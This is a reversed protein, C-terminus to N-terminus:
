AHYRSPSTGAQHQSMSPSYKSAAVEGYINGGQSPLSLTFISGHDPESQVKISGGLMQTFVRVIHLGLGVGGHARASSSDVQRFKEFIVPLAEKPIGVGTDAIAFQVTKKDRSLKVSINVSGEDTFKLANDILNQLIMTLKTRDSNITPLDSSFSWQLSVAKEGASEYRSRLEQLFEALNIPECRVNLQGTEFRTIDLVSSVLGVLNESQVLIKTVAQEQEETMQGFTKSKLAQAYGGILSLPTRLEHSIVDLMEKKARTRKEADERLVREKQIFQTFSGYYFAVVFLFPFRLYVSTDLTEGSKLVFVGYILPALLSVVAQLKSDQLVCTVMILLFFTLYLDTEARGNILLSLTLVITDAIVLPYYFTWSAFWKEHLFYLAVNSLVYLSVFAGLFSEPLYKTSPNLFLSLCIIVVPWRIVIISPKLSLQFHAVQSDLPFLNIAEKAKTRLTGRMSANQRSM